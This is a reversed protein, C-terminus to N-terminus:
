KLQGLKRQRSIIILGSVVILLAGIYTNTNPIENFLFYGYLIGWLIVSYRFTSTVSVLAVKITAISFIYGLSLFFSSIFLILYEDFNFSFIKYLNLAGFCTTVVLCTIFAIQLSHFKSKIKKTYIDRLSLFFASLLPFIFYYGFELKGPDIVIIVGVFGVIVATWRRWRVKENLFLAGFVTLIIPALSLLVYVMAFPLKAIGIFFCIAALAELLGRIKLKGSSFIFKFNFKKKLYLFFGIFFLAFIGRLFIVQNLVLIDDYNQYLIKVLADNTAFSFQCLIMYFIGLLENNLNLKM